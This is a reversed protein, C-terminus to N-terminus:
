KDSKLIRMGPYIEETMDELTEDDFIDQELYEIHEFADEYECNEEEEALLRRYEELLKQNEEVREERQADLEKKLEEELFENEEVDKAIDEIRIARTDIGEEELCRGCNDCIKNPTLDCYDDDSYRYAM